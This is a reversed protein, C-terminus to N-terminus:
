RPPSARSCTSRCRTAASGSSRQRHRDQPPRRPDQAHALDRRRHRDPHGLRVAVRDPGGQRRLAARDQRADRRDGDAQEAIRAEHRARKQRRHAHGRRGPGADRGRRPQAAAPLQPRLRADVNVVEGRLGLKEVDKLLIVNMSEGQWTPCCRWRAPGSSRWPSRGSTAAAPAPSAATASRARRPSTAGYSTSTRTTWRQSRTRASTAARAGGPRRQLQARKRPPTKQAM